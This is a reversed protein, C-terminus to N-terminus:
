KGVLLLDLFSGCLFSLPLFSGFFLVIFSGSYLVTTKLNLPGVLDMHCFESFVWVLLHSLSLSFFFFFSSSSSSSFSSSSSSSSSSFLFFVIPAVGPEEVDDSCALPFSFISEFNQLCIKTSIL